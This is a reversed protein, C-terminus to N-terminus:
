KLSQYDLFDDLENCYTVDKECLISLTEVLLQKLEASEPQIKYALNFESYAGIINNTLLRKKGSYMLFTFAEKNANQINLEMKTRHAESYDEFQNKFVPLLSVVFLIAVIMLFGILRTNEKVKPKLMFTRSYMPLSHFSTLQGRKIFPKRPRKKYLKNQMGFGMYGFM